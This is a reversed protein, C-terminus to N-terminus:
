TNGDVLFCKLFHFFVLHYPILFITYLVKASCRLPLLNLIYVTHCYYVLINYKPTVM